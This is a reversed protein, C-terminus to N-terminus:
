RGDAEAAPRMAVSVKKLAAGRCADLAKAVPGFRGEADGRILVEQDRDRAAEAKLRQLLGEDTVPRGDVTTAGDRKVNIVLLRGGGGEAAHRAEPLSLDLEREEKAFTTVALFFVLLLFMIDLLPTLGIEAPELDERDLRV